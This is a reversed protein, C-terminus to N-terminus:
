EAMGGWFITSIRSNFRSIVQSNQPRIRTQIFSFSQHDITNGDLPLQFSLWCGLMDPALRTTAGASAVESHHGTSATPPSVNTGYTSDLANPLPRPPPFDSSWLAPHRSPIRSGSPSLTGPHFTDCFRCRGTRWPSFRTGRHSVRPSPTLTFHRPLLGGAPERSPAERYFGPLHCCGPRVFGVRLLALYPLIGGMPPAFHGAEGPRHTGVSGPLGRLYIVM